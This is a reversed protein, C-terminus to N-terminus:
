GPSLVRAAPSRHRKRELDGAVEDAVGRRAGVAEAADDLPPEGREGVDHQELIVVDDGVDRLELGIQEAEVGGGDGRVPRLAHRGGDDGAGGGEGIVGDGGGKSLEEGAVARGVAGGEGEAESSQGETDAAKAKGAVGVGAV